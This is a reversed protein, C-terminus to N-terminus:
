AMWGHESGGAAARPLDLEINIQDRYGVAFSQFADAGHSAWNHMPKSRFVKNLDDWDAQYQRLAELGRACKREDFWCRSLVNRVAEIGDEKHQVAPVVTADIGLGKLTARRTKGTGLERVEVDHPLYHDGYVYGRDQLVKAYHKLGEGSNEYYDVFRFERGAVQFFWITTSDDIGLDWATHVQLSDEAPVGTIRGETEAAALYKGYYAGLIAAQFSCYFEQQIMEERMGAQREEEIAELSIAGTDDVTLIENFWSANAKATEFMEAGHNRGRPTYIFLAWGGNETLIPRIFDWAAPDAVAFESFVVGLPNAGILANYNDSGVVQWISGCRLSIKMEQVNEGTRIAEPFVQDIMKRGERDIGDWVVKRGQSLKPLMHWYTGVRMHAACATWNM